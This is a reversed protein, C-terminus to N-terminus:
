VAAPPPAVAARTSLGGFEDRAPRTGRLTGAGPRPGDADAAATIGVLNGSPPDIVAPPSIPEWSVRAGRGTEGDCRDCPGDARYHNRCEIAM